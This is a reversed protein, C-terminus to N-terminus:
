GSSGGAANGHPTPSETLDSVCRRCFRFSPDNPAGCAPCRLMSPESANPEEPFLFEAVAADPEGGSEGRAVTDDLREPRDRGALLSRYLYVAFIAHVGLLLLGVAGLTVLDEMGM